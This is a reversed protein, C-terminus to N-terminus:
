KKQTPIVKILARGEFQVNGDMSGKLIGEIDGSKFGAINNEFHCLQDAYGDGNIDRTQPQCKSLSKENGSSGFSLTEQKIASVDFDASGMIAVPVKGMSRPNLPALDKIGPKVEINIQKTKNVATIGSINLTYDGVQTTTTGFFSMIGGGNVFYRPVTSVAVTYTGSKPAVFKDIRADLISTSGPDIGNSYANMRLLTTADDYIAVISNIDGNGGIGNDIDIDLVDGAQAQFTFYDLDGHSTDGVNGMMGIVSHSSASALAQAAAPSDNSEKEPVAYAMSTMGLAVFGATLLKTNNMKM